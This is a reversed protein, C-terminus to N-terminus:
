GPSTEPLLDSHVYPHAWVVSAPNPCCLLDLQTSQRITQSSSHSFLLLTKHVLTKHTYFELVDTNKVIVVTVYHCKFCM